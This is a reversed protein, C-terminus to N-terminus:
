DVCDFDVTFESLPACRIASCGELYSFLFDMDGSFPFSACLWSGHYVHCVYSM